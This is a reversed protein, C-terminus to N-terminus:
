RSVEAPHEPAARGRRRWLKSSIEGGSSQAGNLVDARLDGVNSAGIEVATDGLGSTVVLNTSQGFGHVCHEFAEFGGAITLASEHGVGGVFEARRQGRGLMLDFERSAVWVVVGIGHQSFEGVVVEPNLVKDIVQKKECALVLDLGGGGFGEGIVDDDVEVVEGEDFGVAAAVGVFGDVARAECFSPDVAIGALEGSNDAVESVVGDSVGVCADRDGGVCDSVVDNEDHLIVPGPDGIRVPIPDELTESPGVVCPGAAVAACTQPQGDDLVEDGVVVAGDGDVGAGLEAAGSEGDGKWGGLM